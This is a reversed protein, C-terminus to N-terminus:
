IANLIAPVTKEPEGIVTDKIFMPLGRWEPLDTHQYLRPKPRGWPSAENPFFNHYERTIFKAGSFVDTM